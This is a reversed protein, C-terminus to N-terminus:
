MQLHVYLLSPEAHYINGQTCVSAGFVIGVAHSAYGKRNRLSFIM